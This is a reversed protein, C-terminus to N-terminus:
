DKLLLEKESYKQNSMKKIKLFKESDEETEKEYINIEGDFLDLIAQFEQSPHMQPNMVALTTFEESKLKTVLATLWRRTEVVHHQLLVDSILGICIRRPTKLSSDLKNIASTLAISIDTLSEVGKLTFVNPSSKIIADAEPNCAFLFFNSPFEEALPKAVSPDITVFFTVESNKAGTELFSKVLLDRENCSPSTLMVAFNSPIGGYLPKDLYKYGTSVHEVLKPKSVKGIEIFAIKEETKEIDKKAGIKLFIELAQSLLDHAKERDGEQDRELYVRAYEYLVTKAFFYVNWRRANLTEFEKLSKEFLEISEKWRKQSRFLMAKLADTSAIILKDETEIAFKLTNDLLIKAKETRGSEIYIRIAGWACIVAQYHKAEAKQSVEIVKDIQELAKVYDGKEAYLWGLSSYSNILQQTDKAKQSYSLAEKHYQESKDWEGFIQLFWGLENISYSLSTMDGAKRDLAVSEEALLVAKSMDGMSFYTDALGTGIWSIWHISGAKKALEFGKRALEFAKENEEAPLSSALNNYARLATNMYGNDLAIKLAREHCETAKKKQEGSIDFILALALYSDAIVEYADLEKALELAKEAWSRAKAMDATRACLRAMDVFLSALEISEPEKELVKLAEEHYVKGKDTDGMSSWLVNAMKRYLRAVTENEDLQKWLLLAENWYNMCADHEGVLRKIDGLRELVQGKKRVEDERVELLRLASQFYSAAEANAYIKEAKEGAKLFYGLAKDKDGSELFHYAIEGFHEDIEKAYVKELVQGVDGHLKKRKFPGVEENVVDRMIIDAFSCIDEGRVVTHKVFGTKILRDMIELLKNEEIGMLACMAELTFDNGAFSAFTLVNQCEDDLRSFRAKVINKISKPFKIASIEKFKWVGEEKYIIEEEKLSKVIEEAFFPNGRAKDYILKCFEEPVDDQELMNKIIESINSLSMRKLQIEQPLRERNLEALVPTLPHKDDIDTNRYVGLLLMSTKQVGRALYHLLLLSSPDTGQLDDLIVLLPAEMSINTIFQSVAEFLRNQEQEASIEFSPHITKLKQRLEPVLKAVEAPYFGIVKDLQDLTCTELYDKIVEKWLIYPPVGDMRFLAPCKGYLVQVGRSRAYAGVERVLRTKGIGAEGYIFVLGGEGHVARYVAEKLSNM